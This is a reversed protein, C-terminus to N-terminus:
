SDAHSKKRQQLERKLESIFKAVEEETMEMAPLVPPPRFLVSFDYAMPYKHQELRKHIAGHARMFSAGSLGDELITEIVFTVLSSRSKLGLATAYDDLSKADDETLFFHCVKSRTVAQPAPGPKRKLKM